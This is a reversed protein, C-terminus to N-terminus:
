SHRNSRVCDGYSAYGFADLRGFDALDKCFSVPEKTELLSVCEGFSLGFSSANAHCWAVDEKAGNNAQAPTGLSAALVVVLAAPAALALTKSM